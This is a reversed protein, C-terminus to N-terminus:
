LRPSLDNNPGGFSDASLEDSAGAAPHWLNLWDLTDALWHM